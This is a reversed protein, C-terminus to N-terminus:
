RARAGRKASRAPQDTRGSGGRRRREQRRPEGKPKPRDRPPVDFREQHPEPRPVIRRIRPPRPFVLRPQRVTPRPPQPREGPRLGPAPRPKGGPQRGGPAEIGLRWAVIGRPGVQAALVNGKLSFVLARIGGPVGVPVRGDMLVAGNLSRIAIRRGYGCAIDLSGPRLSCATPEFPFTVRWRETLRGDALSRRRVFGTAHYTYVARCEGDFRLALVEYDEIRGTPVEWLKRGTRADFASMGDWGWVTVFVRDTPCLGIWYPRHGVRFSKLMRGIASFRRVLGEQLLMFVSAGDHAVLLGQLTGRPNVLFRVPTGTKARWRFVRNSYGFVYVMETRPSFTVRVPMRKKKALWTRYALAGPPRRAYFRRKGNSVNWVALQEPEGVAAVLYGRKDVALHGIDFPAPYIATVRHVLPKAEPEESPRGGVDQRRINVPLLDRWWLDLRGSQSVAAVLAGRRVLALSELRSQGSRLRAVRRRGTGDLLLVSGGELAAGLIGGDPSFRVRRIPREAYLRPGPIPDVFPLHYFRIAGTVLGAAMRSGDPRVAVSALSKGLEVRAVREKSDLNFVEAMGAQDAVVLWPASLAGDMDQVDIGYATRFGAVKKGSPVSFVVVRGEPGALVARRGQVMCLKSIRPLESAWRRVLKGTEVDWVAVGDRAHGATVLYRGGQAFGVLLGRAMEDMSGLTRVVRGDTVRVLDVLGFQRGVAVMDGKPSVSVSVPLGSRSPWLLSGHRFAPRPPAARPRPRAPPRTEPRELACQVRPCGRPAGTQCGLGLLAWVGAIALVRKM